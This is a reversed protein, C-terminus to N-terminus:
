LQQYLLQMCSPSCNHCLWKCPLLCLLQLITPSSNCSLQWLLQWLLQQVATLATSPCNCSLKLVTPLATALCRASCICSLQLATALCNDSCKYCQRCLLQQVAPLATTPCSASCNFPLQMVTTPSKTSCNGLYSAFAKPRDRSYFIRHKLGVDAKSFLNM